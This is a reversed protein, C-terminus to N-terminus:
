RLSYEDDVTIKKQPRLTMAVAIFVPFGVISYAIKVAWNPYGGYPLDLEEGVYLFLLTGLVLPIVLKVVINWRKHVKYSSLSNIYQRVREVGFIWGIAICELIGVFVLLFNTVYHDILDLYYLGADTTFFFSLSFCLACVWYSIQEKRIESLNDSIVVVISEVLSFVSDIGLTLLVLFFLVSFFGTWWPMLALLKPFVVFTLGPGSTAVDLVPQGTEYAMHGIVSFVIFGSFISIAADFLAIVLANKLINNTPKNFSAYAIMVGMSISFTFFIQSAAAIWVEASLLASFDPCAYYYIGTWAGDLTIGRFFFIVLLIILLIIPLFVTISVISGVSQVGKRICFYTAVWVCALALLLHWNVTGMEAISESINLVNQFFYGKPNDAWPLNQSFSQVLYFATWAMVTAYYIVIIFSTAIGLFGIGVLRPHIAKFAKIAGKQLKQGLALELILLPIGLVFLAIIYPFLFAGGGYKYALYPFRWMNGLGVASGVAALTFSRSSNWRERVIDSM